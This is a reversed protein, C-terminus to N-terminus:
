QPPNKLRKPAQPLEVAQAPLREDGPLWGGYVDVMDVVRDDFPTVHLVWAQDELDDEGAFAERTLTTAYGEASLAAILEDADDAEDFYITMRSMSRVGLGV